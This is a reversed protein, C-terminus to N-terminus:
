FTGSYRVLGRTTIALSMFLTQLLWCESIYRQLPGTRVRRPSAGNALESGQADGISDRAPHTRTLTDTALPGPDSPADGVSVNQDDPPLVQARLGSAAVSRSVDREGTRRKM